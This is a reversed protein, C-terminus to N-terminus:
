AKARLSEVFKEVKPSRVHNDPVVRQELRASAKTSRVVSQRRANESVTKKSM